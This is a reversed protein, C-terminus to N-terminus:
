PLVAVRQEVDNLRERDRQFKWFFSMLWHSFLVPQARQLHTYGPMIIDLCAEAKELIAKQLEGLYQRLFAIEEILYLRLDTSVQDNRSRGTHLKGAVPGALETLRREVATHIDEDEPQFLFIGADMEDRIQKLGVALQDREEATLLGVQLLANAYAISGQIDAAYLRRDFAISNNFCRTQEDMGKTFRGGWLM